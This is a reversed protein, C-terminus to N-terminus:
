TLYTFTVIWFKWNQLTRTKVYEEFMKKLQDARQRTVPVGTAPLQAQCEV